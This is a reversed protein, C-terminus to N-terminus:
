ISSFKNGYCFFFFHFCISFFTKIKHMLFYELIKKTPMCSIFDLRQFCHCSLPFTNNTITYKPLLAFLSYCQVNFIPIFHLFLPFVVLRNNYVIINPAGRQYSFFSFSFFFARRCVHLFVNSFLSLLLM